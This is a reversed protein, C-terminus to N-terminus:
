FGPWLLIDGEGYLEPDYDSQMRWSIVRIDRGYMELEVKIQLVENIPVTFRIISQDLEAGAAYVQAAIDDQPAERVIRSIEALLEEARSDAAYFADSSYAAQRALRYSAAASVMALTAFTTICLIVFIVLISSGGINVGGGISRM